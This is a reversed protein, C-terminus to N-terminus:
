VCQDAVCDCQGLRQVNGSLHGIGRFAFRNDRNFWCRRGLRLPLLQGYGASIRERGQEVSGVKTGAGQVCDKVATFICAAKGPQIHALYKLVLGICVALQQRHAGLEVVQFADADLSRCVAKDEVLVDDLGVNTFAIDMAGDGGRQEESCLVSAEIVVQGHLHGVDKAVVHVKGAVNALAVAEFHQKFLQVNAVLSDAIVVDEGGAESAAALGVCGHAVGVAVAVGAVVAGVAGAHALGEDARRNVEGADAGAEVRAAQMRYEVTNARVFTDVVCRSGARRDLCGTVAADDGSAALTSVAIGHDNLVTALVLGQIAVHAAKGIANASAAVYGLALDDAIDAHGAQGGARM